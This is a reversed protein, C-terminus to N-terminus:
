FFLGTLGKCGNKITKYVGDHLNSIELWISVRIYGTCHVVSYSDDKYSIRKEKCRNRIELLHSDSDELEGEYNGCRM